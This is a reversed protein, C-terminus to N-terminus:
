GMLRVSVAKELSDTWWTYKYIQGNVFFVDIHPGFLNQPKGVQGQLYWQAKTMYTDQAFGAMPIPPIKSDPVPTFIAPIQAETTGSKIQKMLEALQAKEAETLSNSGAECKVIKVCTTVDPVDLVQFKLNGKTGGRKSCGSAALAIGVMVALAVGKIKM